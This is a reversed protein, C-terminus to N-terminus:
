EVIIGDMEEKKREADKVIVIKRAQERIKEEISKYEDKDIPDPEAAEVNVDEEKVDKGVPSIASSQAAQKSEHHAVARQHSKRQRSNLWKPEEEKVDKVMPTIASSQRTAGQLLDMPSPASSQKIAGQLLAMPGVPDQNCIKGWGSEGGVKFTLQFLVNRLNPYDKLKARVEVFHIERSHQEIFNFCIHKLDKLQLEEGIVIYDLVSEVSLGEMLSAELGGKVEEVQFKQAAGLLSIIKNPSLNDTDVQGSYLFRVLLSLTDFDTETVVCLDPNDRIRESFVASGSALVVKHVQLEMQDCQLRYDSFQGTQLMPLLTSSHHQFLAAQKKTLKNLQEAERCAAKVAWPSPPEMPSPASSLRTAGMLLAMPSQASNQRTAGHLLNMSTPASIQKTAGQLLTMPASSQRTAGQLLAMPNPASSQGTAGQLLDMPSQASSQKTAGQLLAMPTPAPSLSSLNSLNIGRNFGVGRARVKALLKTEMEHRKQEDM